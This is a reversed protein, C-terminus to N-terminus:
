EFSLFKVEVRRNKNQDSNDVPEDWGRGETLIRSPDCNYREILLKKIFEARRKSILKAQASAEIFVQQGQAKYEAVKTALHGILKVVTTGLVNMQEAINGLYKLNQRIEERSSNIDFDIHQSEFYIQVDETLVIKKMELDAINFSGQRNFSTKIMNQQNAFLNQAKLALLVDSGIVIEAQYNVDSPLSGANKYYDQALYFIKLANIPNDIDFFM